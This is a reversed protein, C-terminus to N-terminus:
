VDEVLFIVAKDGIVKAKHKFDDGAPILFGNGLTLTRLEGGFDIELTGDLLYGIHGKRCWDSEEFQHSFEVLRLRKGNQVFSKMRVGLAPSKWSLDEFVVVASIRDDYM